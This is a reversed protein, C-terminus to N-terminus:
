ATSPTSWMTMAPLMVPSGGTSWSPLMVPSGGTSWLRLHFQEATQTCYLEQLAIIDADPNISLLRKKMVEVKPMGVTETTAMAQRNINSVSVNDNDVITLHGIGSRVLSEACWSGVGGIGFIIVRTDQLRKMVEKGLLLETRDFIDQEM